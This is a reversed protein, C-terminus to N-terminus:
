DKSTYEAIHKIHLYQVVTVEAEVVTAYTEDFGEAVLEGSIAEGTLMQEVAFFWGERAEDEFLWHVLVNLMDALRACVKPSRPILRSLQGSSSSTTSDPEPDNGVQHLLSPKGLRKWLM